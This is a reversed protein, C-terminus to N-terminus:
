FCLLNRLPRTKVGVEDAEGEASSAPTVAGGAGYSLEGDELVATRILVSFDAQGDASIHGAVGSYWGRPHVEIQKLIEVAEAKPAGTMSGPPMAAIVADLPSVQEDLRGELTSIMQHVASFTHVACEETVEISGPACVKELDQRMVDIVLRNENKDKESTLLDQKLAEDEAPTEGRGRTGKIPSVSVTKEATVQLFREPSSSLISLGDILWLSAMPAPTQERLRLYLSLPDAETRTRFTTTLCLEDIPGLLSKCKDVAEVYRQRDLDGKLESATFTSTTPPIAAPPNDGYAWLQGDEEVLVMDPELYLAQTAEYDLTVFLGPNYYGGGTVTAPPPMTLERPHCRGAKGTALISRTGYPHQTDASDLWVLDRGQAYLSAAYEPLTGSIPRSHWHKKM